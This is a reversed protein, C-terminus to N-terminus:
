LLSIFCGIGAACLEPNEDYGDECDVNSDCVYGLYVRTWRPVRGPVDWRYVETSSMTCERWDYRYRYSLYMETSDKACRPPVGAYQGHYVGAPWVFLGYVGPYVETSQATCGTTCKRWDCVYGMPICTSTSKCPFPKEFDPCPNGAVLWTTVQSFWVTLDDYSFYSFILPQM